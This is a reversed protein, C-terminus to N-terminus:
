SSSSTFVSLLELFPQYGFATEGEPGMSILGGDDILYGEAVLHDTVARARAAVEDGLM